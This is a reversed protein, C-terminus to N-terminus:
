FLGRARGPCILSNKGTWGTARWIQGRLQDRVLRLPSEPKHESTLSGVGEVYWGSGGLMVKGIATMRKIHEPSTVLLLLGPRPLTGLWQSLDAIETVTDGCTDITVVRLRQEPTLTADRVLNLSQSNGGSVTLVLLARSRTKWIDLATRTRQHDGMAVAVVDPLSAPHSAFPDVPPRIWPWFWWLLSAAGLSLALPHRRFPLALLEALEGTPGNRLWRIPAPTRHRKRRHHGSHSSKVPRSITDETPRKRLCPLLHRMQRQLLLACRRGAQMSRRSKAQGIARVLEQMEEPPSQQLWNLLSPIRQRRRRRRYRRREKQPPDARGNPDSPTM